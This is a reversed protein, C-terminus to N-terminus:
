ASTLEQILRRSALGICGAERDDFAGVPFLLVGDAAVIDAILDLPPWPDPADWGKGITQRALAEGRGDVAVLYSAPEVELLEVLPVVSRDNIQMAGFFRIGQPSQVVSEGIDRGDPVSIGRAKLSGWLRRFRTVRNDPQWASHSAFLWLEYNTCRSLITSVAHDLAFRHADAPREGTAYWGAGGVSLGAVAQGPQLRALDNDVFVDDVCQLQVDM